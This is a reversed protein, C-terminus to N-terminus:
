VNKMREEDQSNCSLNVIDIIENIKKIIDIENIRARRTYETIPCGYIDVLKEIKDIVRPLDFM